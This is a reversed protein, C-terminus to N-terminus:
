GSKTVRPIRGKPGKLHDKILFAEAESIAVTLSVIHEPVYAKDLTYAEQAPTMM